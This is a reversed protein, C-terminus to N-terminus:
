KNIMKILVQKTAEVIAQLFEDVRLKYVIFEGFKEGSMAIIGISVAQYQEQVHLHILDSLLWACSVGAIFSLAVNLFSLKTKKMQVSIKLSIGVMAPLLIKTIFETIGDPLGKFM